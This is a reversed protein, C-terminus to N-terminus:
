ASAGWPLHAPLNCVDGVGFWATRHRPDRNCNTTSESIPRRYVQPSGFHHSLVHSDRDSSFELEETPDLVLAPPKDSV